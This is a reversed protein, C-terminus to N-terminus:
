ILPRPQKEEPALPLDARHLVLSGQFHQARNLILRKGEDTLAFVPISIGIQLRSRRGVVDRVAQSACSWVVDCSDALLQAEAGSIGTTHVALLYPRKGLAAGLERLAKARDRICM